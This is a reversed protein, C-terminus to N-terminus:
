RWVRSGPRRTRRGAIGRSRRGRGRSMRVARIRADSSKRVPRLWRCAGNREGPYRLRAAGPPALRGMRLFQRGRSEAAGAAATDAFRAGDGAGRDKMGGGRRRGAVPACAFPRRGAVSTISCAGDAGTRPMWWCTSCDPVSWRAAFGKRPRGLADQPVTIEFRVALGPPRGPNYRATKGRYQATLRPPHRRPPRGM